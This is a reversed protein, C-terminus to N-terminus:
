AAYYHACLCFDLDISYPYDPHIYLAQPSFLNDVYIIVKSGRRAHCNTPEWQVLKM